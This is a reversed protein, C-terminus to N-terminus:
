VLAGEFDAVTGIASLALSVATSIPKDIDSTNDVNGLGVQTKTVNHPNDVNGTHATLDSMFVDSDLGNYVVFTDTTSDTYTITYTDTGGSQGALGSVDTTSTFAIQVIGNGTDGTDGKDGKGFPAAISWDGSTDSLKFYIEATDISLFSFGRARDDYLSRDVLLGVSNVQFAEGRDGKIGQPIVFTFKGDVPNYVVSANTGAAGTITSGVSVNKIENSKATAIDAQQTAIVAQETAIVAQQTATTANAEANQISVINDAVTGVKVINDAVTNVDTISDAVTNVSAISGGTLNVNDISGAVTNINDVDTAAINVNDISEAVTNVNAISDGVIGVTNTTQLNSAVEKISSDISQLDTAVSNIYRNGAVRIDDYVVLIETLVAYIDKLEDLSNYITNDGLPNGNVDYRDILEPIRAQLEILEDISRSLPILKDIENGLAIIDGARMSLTQFASTTNAWFYVPNPDKYNGTVAHLELRELNSSKGLVDYLRVFEGVVPTAFNAAVTDELKELFATERPGEIVNAVITSSQMNGSVEMYFPNGPVDAVVTVSTPQVYATMPIAEGNIMNAIGAIISDRTSGVGSTYTFSENDITVVYAENDAVTFQYISDEQAVAYVYDLRTLQVLLDGHTSVSVPNQDFMFPLDIVTGDNFYATAKDYSVRKAPNTWIAEAADPDKDILDQDIGEMNLALNIDIKRNGLYNGKKLDHVAEQLDLEAIESLIPIVGEDFIENTEVIVDLKNVIRNVNAIFSNNM